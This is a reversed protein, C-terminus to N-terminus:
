YDQNDKHFIMIPLEKKMKHVGEYSNECYLLEGEVDGEIIYIDDIHTLYLEITQHALIEKYNISISDM